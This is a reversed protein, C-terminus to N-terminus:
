NELNVDIPDEDGSKEQQSLTEFASFAERAKAAEGLKQYVQGLQYVAPSLTPKLRVAIELEVRAEPLKGLSRYRKGLQYHTLPNSPDIKRAAQLNQMALDDENLMSLLVGYHLLYHANQPELHLANAFHLKAQDLHGLWIEVVGNMFEAKDNKPDLQLAHNFHRTSREFEKALFFSMGLEYFVSSSQPNVHSALLFSEIASVQDGSRQHIWGKEMLYEFKAPMLKVAQGICQVAQQNQGLLMYARAALELYEASREVPGAKLSALVCAKDKREVCHSLKQFNESASMLILSAVAAQLATM